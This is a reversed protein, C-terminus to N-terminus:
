KKFISYFENQRAFVICIWQLKKLDLSYQPIKTIKTETYKFCM